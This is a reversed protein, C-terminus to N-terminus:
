SLLICKRGSMPTTGPINNKACGTLEPKIGDSENNIPPNRKKRKAYLMPDDKVKSLFSLGSCIYLSYKTADKPTDLRNIKRENIM